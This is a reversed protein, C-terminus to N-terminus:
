KTNKLSCLSKLLAVLWNCSHWIQLSHTYQQDHLAENREAMPCFTTLCQRHHLQTAGWHPCFIQLFRQVSGQLRTVTGNYRISSLTLYLPWGHAFNSRVICSSKSLSSSYKMSTKHCGKSVYVIYYVHEYDTATRLMATQKRVRM